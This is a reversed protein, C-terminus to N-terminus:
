ERVFTHTFVTHNPCLHYEQTYGDLEEKSDDNFSAWVILGKEPNVHVGAHPFHVAGGGQDPVDCFVFLKGAQKPDDMLFSKTTRSPSTAMRCVEEEEENTCEMSSEDNEEQYFDFLNHGELSSMHDSTLDTWGMAVRAFEYFKSVFNHLIFSDTSKEKLRAWAILGSEKDIAGQIARCEQDTAFKKVMFIRSSPREHMVKIQYNKHFGEIGKHAWTKNISEETTNFTNDLCAYNVMKSAMSSRITSQFEQEERKRDLTANLELELCQSLADVKEIASTTTTTASHLEKEKCVQILEKAKEQAQKRKDTHHVQFENDIEVVLTV